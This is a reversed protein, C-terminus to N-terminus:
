KNYERIIFILGGYPAIKKYPFEVTVDHFYNWKRDKLFMLISFSICNIEYNRILEYKFNSENQM